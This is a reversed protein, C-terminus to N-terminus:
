GVPKRIMELAEAQDIGVGRDFDGLVQGALVRKKELRELIELDISEAALVNFYTVSRTQGIRHIRDLSQAYLDFRWNLTEYIAYCSATLTLGTGAAQPNGIFLACGPDEQFRELARTRENMGISGYIAVPDYREYRTLFEEISRVYYSWLVVKRGNGVILEELLSDIETFKAPEGHFSPDVLRPNSAIQSLRLLRTLVNPQSVRYEEPSLSAIEDYLDGRYANYLDRQSGRLEVHREEFVKEPLDLVEEKTRRLMVPELRVNLELAAETPDRQGGFQRRFAERSGLLRGGDAIFVQAYADDLKNPIPTGSM